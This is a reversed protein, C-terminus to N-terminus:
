QDVRMSLEARRGEEISLKNGHSFLMDSVQYCDPQIVFMQDSHLPLILSCKLFFGEVSCCVKRCVVSFRYSGEASPCCLQCFVVVHLLKKIQVISVINKKKVGSGCSLQM